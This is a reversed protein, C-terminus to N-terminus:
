QAPAEPQAEQPQEAPQEAAQEPNEQQLGQQIQPLDNENVYAHKKLYDYWLAYSKAKLHVNDFSLDQGLAGHEDDTASNMDIYFVHEGDALTSLAENRANITSNKFVRDSESKKHTVHMIGQIYIIADPQLERIRSVVAGYDAAFSEATGSGLENLGLMIYIKAFQKRTLAEEVTVKETPLDEESGEYGEPPVVRATVFPKKNFGYITLSVKAYFTAREDLEPCYESLGVTRSDGIFLADDFYSDPVATEVYNIHEPATAEQPEPPVTNDEAAAPAANGDSVAVDSDSVAVADGDSVAANGDSVAANGDSVAANGDSVAADGDSVEPAVAEDSAEAVQEEPNADAGTNEDSLGSAFDEEDGNDITDDLPMPIGFFKAQILSVLYPMEGNMIKRLPFSLLPADAANYETEDYVSKQGLAADATFFLAVVLIGVSLFHRGFKKM